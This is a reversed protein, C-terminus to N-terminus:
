QFPYAGDAITAATGGTQGTAHCPQRDYRVVHCQDHSGQALGSQNPKAGPTTDGTYTFVTNFIEIHLLLNYCLKILLLLVEVPIVIFEKRRKSASALFNTEM